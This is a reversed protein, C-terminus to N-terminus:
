GSTERTVRGRLTLVMGAKMTTAEFPLAIPKDLNSKRNIRTSNLNLFGFSNAKPMIKNKTIGM